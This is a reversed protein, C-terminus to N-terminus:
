SYGIGKAILENAILVRRVESTGAGIELLKANRYFRNIPYETTYGYGGHIQLSENTARTAAEATFLVAAGALKHIETGKGGTKAKNALLAARYVLGRAAEMETYMNSLKAKILQFNSIPQDFQHRKKAYSLGLETAAEGIGLSIGAVAVRETDLGTMMVRIGEDVKGVVNEEPVRCGNLVIEGTQSGRHGMKSIKQSISFGPTDKEVIFATIGKAKKEMDTKAYILAVDAEPANTIFMKNGDLRFYGNERVATTRIGVADSGADPETLGLCGILHGSCLGPLYKKKQEENGNGELNHACLDTHAVYSLALGPCVRAVQEVALTFTLIDMGTGGYEEPIGLGWFAWNGSNKGYGKPFATKWILKNQM